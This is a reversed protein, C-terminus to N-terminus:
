RWQTQDFLDRVIRESTPSDIEPPDVLAVFWKAAAYKERSVMAGNGQDTVSVTCLEYANGVRRVDFTFHVRRNVNADLYWRGVLEPIPLEEFHAKVM